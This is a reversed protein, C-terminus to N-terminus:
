ESYLSLTFICAVKFIIRKNIHIKKIPWSSPTKKIYNGAIQQAVLNAAYSCAESFKKQRFFRGVIYAALFVDGAGTPDELSRIKDAAYHIKDGSRKQVFGGRKRLTVIRLNIRTNLEAM